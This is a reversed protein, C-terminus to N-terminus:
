LSARCEGQHWHAVGSPALWERCQMNPGDPVAATRPEPLASLLADHRPWLRAFWSRQKPPLSHLVHLTEAIYVGLVSLKEQAWIRELHAGAADGGCHTEEQAIRLAAFQAALASRLGSEQFGHEGKSEQICVRSLQLLAEVSCRADLATKAHFSQTSLAADVLGQGTHGICSNLGRDLWERSQAFRGLRSEVTSLKFAMAIQFVNGHPADRYAEYLKEYSLGALSLSKPTSMQTRVDALWLELAVGTADLTKDHSSQFDPVSIGRSEAVDLATTLFRETLSLGQYTSLDLMQTNRLGRSARGFIHSPAVGSGWKEAIWASRMIHRGFIGMRPDTGYPTNLHAVVDDIDWGYPDTRHDDIPLAKGDDRMPFYEVYQHAGEWSGVTIICVVMTASILIRAIRSLISFFEVVPGSLLRMAYSGKSIRPRVSYHRLGVHQVSRLIRVAGPQVGPLACLRLGPRLGPWLGLRLGFLPRM